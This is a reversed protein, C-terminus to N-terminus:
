QIRQRTTAKKVATSPPKVQVGEDAAKTNLIAAKETAGANKYLSGMIQIDEQSFTSTDVRATLSDLGKITGRTDGSNYRTALNNLYASPSLTTVSGDPVYASTNIRDIKRDYAAKKGKYEPTDKVHDIEKQADEKRNLKNLVEANSVHIYPVDKKQLLQEYRINAYLYNEQKQYLIASNNLALVDNSDIQLIRNYTELAATEEKQVIKSWALCHLAFLRLSDDTACTSLEEFLRDAQQIAEKKEQETDAKEFREKAILGEFLNILCTVEGIWEKTKLDFIGKLPAEAEPMGHSLIYSEYSEHDLYHYLNAKGDGRYDVEGWILMNAGCQECRAKAQDKTRVRVPHVFASVSSLSLKGKIHNEFSKSSLGISQLFPQHYSVFNDIIISVNKDQEFTPCEPKYTLLFYAAALILLTGAYGTFLRLRPHISKITPPPENKSAALGSKYLNRVIAQHYKSNKTHSFPTWGATKRWASLQSSIRSAIEPYGNPGQNELMHIADELADQYLLRRFSNFDFSM